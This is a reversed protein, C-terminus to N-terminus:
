AVAERAQSWIRLSRLFFHELAVDEKLNVELLGGLLELEDVARVLAFSPFPHHQSAEIAFMRTALEIEAWLRNRIGKRIGVELADKEDADVSDPLSAAEVKWAEESTQDLIRTFGTVLGYAALVADARATADTAGSLLLGLWQRYRQTWQLWEEHEITTRRSPLRFNFCRSRITDLLAYPRTTLLLLTTDAPPEELTKLFANATANNMRDAEYVMAVKRGGQNSSQAVERLLRRMTNPEEAGREGIRIQRAKKAPRLTFLDPHIQVKEPTTDLLAAALALAVSEVEGLEEGQLLIAHALRGSQLSAELVKVQRCQRLSPPLSDSLNPRM